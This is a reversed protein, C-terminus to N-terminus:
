MNIQEVYRSIPWKDIAKMLDQAIQCPESIYANPITHKRSHQLRIEDPYELLRLMELSHGEYPPHVLNGSLPREVQEMERMETDTPSRSNTKTFNYSHDPRRY